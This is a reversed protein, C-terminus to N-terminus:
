RKAPNPSPAFRGWMWNPSGVLYVASIRNTDGGCTYCWRAFSLRNSFVFHALLRLFSDEVGLRNAILLVVLVSVLTLSLMSAIQMALSIKRDFRELNQCAMAM